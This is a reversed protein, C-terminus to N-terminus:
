ASGYFCCLHFFFFKRLFVLLCFIVQVWALRLRSQGKAPRGRGRKVVGDPGIVPLAATRQGKKPPSGSAEAM